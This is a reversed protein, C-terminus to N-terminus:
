QSFASTSGAAGAPRRQVLGPDDAGARVQRMAAYPGITFIAQVRGGRGLVVAACSSTMSRRESDGSSESM